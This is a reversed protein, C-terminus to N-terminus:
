RDTVVLRRFFIASFICLGTEVTHPVIQILAYIDCKVYDGSLEGHSQQFPHSYLKM